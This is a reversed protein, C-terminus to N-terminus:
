SPAQSYTGRDQFFYATSFPLCLLSPCSIFKPVLIRGLRVFHRLVGLKVEGVLVYGGDNTRTILGLDRLRELHHNAISPSKFALARQVERVTVEQEPGKSLMYWYVHWTRGRLELDIEKGDV